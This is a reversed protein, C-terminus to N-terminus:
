DTSEQSQYNSATEVFTVIKDLIREAYNFLNESQLGKITETLIELNVTYGNLGIWVNSKGKAKAVKARQVGMANRDNFGHQNEADKGSDDLGEEKLIDYLCTRNLKDLPGKYDAKVTYVGAIQGLEKIVNVERKIKNLVMYDM